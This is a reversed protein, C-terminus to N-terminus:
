KCNAFWMENEMEFEYGANKYTADISYLSLFLLSSIYVQEEEKAMCQSVMTQLSGTFCVLEKSPFKVENQTSSILLKYLHDLVLKQNQHQLFYTEAINKVRADVATYIVQMELIWHCSSRTNVFTRNETALYESLSLLMVKQVFEHIICKLICCKLLQMYRM